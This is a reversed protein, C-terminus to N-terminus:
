CPGNRELRNDGTDSTIVHAVNQLCNDTISANHGGEFLVYMNSVTNNRVIPRQSGSNTSVAADCCPGQGVFTNGEVVVDHAKAIEVGWYPGSTLGGPIDVMNFRNGRITVRNSDPLSILTHGGSLSNGEILVDETCKLEIGFWGSPAQAVSARNQDFAPGQNAVNNVITIHHAPNPCPNAGENGRISIIDSWRAKTNTMTNGQITIYSVPGTFFMPSGSYDAISSNRIVLNQRGNNMAFANGGGRVTWGDITVGDALIGVGWDWAGQSPLSVTPGVITLPKTIRVAPQGSPSPVTYSCGTLNLTSGAPAADIKAQM